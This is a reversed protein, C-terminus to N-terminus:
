WYRATAMLVVAVLLHWAMIKVGKELKGKLRGLEQMQEPTPPAGSAAVAASIKGMKDARPKNMFLGICLAAIAAVAGLTIAMGFNTQFWAAQFNASLIQMMRLGAIVNILGMTTMVTPMKKTRTLQQMFKGGDPGLANVAPFIFFALYFVGGAWFVGTFIHLLRLTLIEPNM